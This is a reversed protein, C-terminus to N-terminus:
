EWAHDGEVWGQCGQQGFNEDSYASHAKSRDCFSNERRLRRWQYGDLVEM